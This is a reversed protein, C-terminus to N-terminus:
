ESAPVEEDVELSAPAFERVMANLRFAMFPVFILTFVAFAMDVMWPISTYEFDMRSTVINWVFSCAIYIGLLYSPGKYELGTKAAFGEGMGNLKGFTKFPWYINFVPIFLFGVSKGPTPMGKALAPDFARLTQVSKWARYLLILFFIYFVVYLVFSAGLTLFFPISFLHGTDEDWMSVYLSTPFQDFVKGYGKTIYEEQEETLGKCYDFSVITEIQKPRLKITEGGDIALEYSAMGTKKIGIAELIQHESWSDLITFSTLFLNAVVFCITLLCLLFQNVPKLGPNLAMKM